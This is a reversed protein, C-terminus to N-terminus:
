RNNKKTDNTDEGRGILRTGMTVAEKANLAWGHAGIKEWLTPATNFVYGGVLITVPKEDSNSTFKEIINRVKAVHNKMTASVCVINAQYDMAAEYLSREPTNAGIYYTDWGELEFFDTVMRIGIEHLEEGVCASVVRGGITSKLPFREYLVAMIFQAVASCYHEQAVSIINEEWLRGIEYQAPQIVSLLADQIPMGEDVAQIVLKYASERDRALLAELYKEVMSDYTGM